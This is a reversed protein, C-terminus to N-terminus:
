QTDKNDLKSYTVKFGEKVLAEDFSEGRALLRQVRRRQARPMTNLVEMEKNIIEQESHSM